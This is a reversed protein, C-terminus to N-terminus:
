TIPSAKDDREDSPRFRFIHDRTSSGMSIEIDRMRRTLELIQSRELGTKKMVRGITTWDFKSNKIVDRILESDTRQPLGTMQVGKNDRVPPENAGAQEEVSAGIQNATSEVRDGIDSIETKYYDAMRKMDNEVRAYLKEIDATFKDMQADFARRRELQENNSTVQAELNAARSENLVRDLERRIKDSDSASTKADRVNKNLEDIESRIQSRAQRVDWGFFMVSLVSIIALFGGSAILFWKFITVLDGVDLQVVAPPHPTATTASPTAIGSSNRSANTTSQQDEPPPPTQAKVTSIAVAIVFPLVFTLLRRRGTKRLLKV